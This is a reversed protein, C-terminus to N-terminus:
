PIYNIYTYNCIANTGRTKENVKEGSKNRESGQVVIECKLLLIFDFDIRQPTQLWAALSDHELEAM